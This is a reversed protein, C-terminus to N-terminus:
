SSPLKAPPQERRRREAAMLQALMEVTLGQLIVM